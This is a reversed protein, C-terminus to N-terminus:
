NGLVLAQLTQALFYVFYDQILFLFFFFLHSEHWVLYMVVHYILLLHSLCPWEGVWSFETVESATGPFATHCSEKCPHAAGELSVSSFLALVGKKVSTPGPWCRVLCLSPECAMRSYTCMRGLYRWGPMPDRGEGGWVVESAFHPSLFLQFSPEAPSTAAAQHLSMLEYKQYGYWFGPM